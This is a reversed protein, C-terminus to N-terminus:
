DEIPGGGGGPPAIGAWVKEGAEFYMENQPPIDTGGLGHAVVAVAQYPTGDLRCLGWTYPDTDGENKLAFLYPSCGLRRCVRILALMYRGREDHQRPLRFFNSHPHGDSDFSGQPLSVGIETVDIDATPFIETVWDLQQRLVRLAFAEYERLGIGAEFGWYPYTHVPIKVVTQAPNARSPGVCHALWTAGTTLNAQFNAKTQGEFKSSAAFLSRSSPLYARIAAVMYESYIHFREDWPQLEGDVLPRGGDPENIWELDYDCGSAELVDITNYHFQLYQDWLEYTVLDTVGSPPRDGNVGGAFDNAWAVGGPCLALWTGTRPGRVSLAVLLHLGSSAAYAALDELWEMDWTAPSANPAVSGTGMCQDIRVSDFGWGVITNSIFPVDNYGADKRPNPSVIGNYM